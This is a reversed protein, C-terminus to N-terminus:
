KRSVRLRFFRAALDELSGAKVTVTITGDANLTRDLEEASVPLWTELTTSSELRYDLEHALLLRRFHVVFSSSSDTTRVSAALKPPDTALKPNTGHAYELLNPVGDVDCDAMEGSVAQDALEVGSFFNARWAEYSITAAFLDNTPWVLSSTSISSIVKNYLDSEAGDLDWSNLIFVFIVGNRCKASRTNTGFLAGSKWWEGTRTNSSSVFDWGLPGSAMTVVSNTNLIDPFSSQGDVSAVFRAYDIGSGVFGGASDCTTIPHAYPLDLDVPKPEMWNPPGVVQSATVSRHLYGVAEGSLRNSLSDGGLQVRTVGAKFLLDRAVAEFTQGTVKEIVQGAVVYGVNSYVYRSGPNSQLPKGMMWLVLDTPTPKATLGLDSIIWDPWCAGDFGSGGLPNKATAWDWGAKHSLLHRVTINTLRPDYVSGPYQPPKLDLLSFARTELDLRGEEILKMIVAATITKSLSALRCRSDPQFQENHEVDAWGYGRAFVLRGDKVVALLGGPIGYTLLVSQMNTDLRALEPIRPGTPQPWSRVMVQAVRSTTAGSADAVVVRYSGHHPLRVSAINLSRNTADTLNTGNFQWQFSLPAVGNATVNLTVSKGEWAFQPHPDTVISPQARTTPALRGAVLVFVAITLRLATKM